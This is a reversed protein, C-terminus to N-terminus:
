EIEERCLHCIVKWVLPVVSLPLDNWYYKCVFAYPLVEKNYKIRFNKRMNNFTFSFSMVVFMNQILAAHFLAWNVEPNLILISSQVSNKSPNKKSGWRGIPYIGAFVFLPGTAKLYYPRYTSILVVLIICCLCNEYGQYCHLICTLPVLFYPLRTFSCCAKGKWSAALSKQLRHLAWDGTVLCLRAILNVWEASLYASCVWIIEVPM